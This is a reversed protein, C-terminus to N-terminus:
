LDDGSGPGGESVQRSECSYRSTRTKFSLYFNWVLSVINSFLVQYKLPTFMFNIMQMPGWLSWNALLLGPVSEGLRLRLRTIDTDQGGELTWLSVLWVPLFVPTFVAQDLLVRKAVSRASTSPLWRALAGYWVHIAPATLVGGLLIFQFTRTADWWYLLPRTSVDDTSQLLQRKRDAKTDNDDHVLSQCALDGAGSILACTIAKTGLPYRDIM